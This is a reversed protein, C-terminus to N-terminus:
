PSCQAKSGTTPPGILASACTGFEQAAPNNELPIERLATWVRRQFATGGGDVPVSALAGLDGALYARVRSALGLPHAHGGPDRHGVRHLTVRQGRRVILPEAGVVIRAPWRMVVVNKTLLSPIAVAVLKTIVLM